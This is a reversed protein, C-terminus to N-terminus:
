TLDFQNIINWNPDKIDRSIKKLRTTRTIVSLSTNFEKAKIASKNVIKHMPYSSTKDSKNETDSESNAIPRRKTSSVWLPEGQINKGQNRRM